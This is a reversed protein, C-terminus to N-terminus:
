HNGRPKKENELFKVIKKGIIKSVSRQSELTQGGIHPTCIVNTLKMNERCVPPENEYVDLAVGGLKGSKVAKLLSTEDVIGGRSTNILFAGDKMSKIEKTGILHRTQSTLPIHITIVDSKQLFDTLDNIPIFEVKLENLLEISPKTRKTVIIKMGLVKAIRAVKQGIKGFTLLIDLSDKYLIM